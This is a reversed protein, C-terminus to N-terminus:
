IQTFLTDSFPIILGLRNNSPVHYLATMIYKLTNMQLYHPSDHFIWVYWNPDQRLNLGAAELTCILLTLAWGLRILLEHWPFVIECRHDCQDKKGWAKCPKHAAGTVWLNTTDRMIHLLQDLIQVYVVIYVPINLCNWCVVCIFWVLWFWKQDSLWLSQFRACMVSEFAWVDRSYWIFTVIPHGGLLM